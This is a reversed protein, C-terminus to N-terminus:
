SFLDPVFLKSRSSSIRRFLEIYKQTIMDATYRVLATQRAAQGLSAALTTDTILTDLAEYLQQFNGAEVVLGNKSHELIDKVGGVSTSIVPLGCAMAEILSIGFAESETPFVFIDSAQLYEEVELVSGTFHITDRLGNTSVYAKLEAECNHLDLGGSGILLLRVQGHQRQINRWVQLLLPLGKYSVLRGTFIVIRDQEPLSLKRRLAQREYLSVPRFRRTDVSNPIMQITEPNVGHDVLEMAVESSIAVFADAWRLVRDRLGLFTRFLFSSPRLGVKALGDRFFDGSMEGLSDAKLICVKGYLKSILAASLGVVRFGSVFILEYQRRLKILALFSTFLLGWKKFHESGVPPLRYVTVKGYREVKKFSADSRRTLVIVADGNAVLGEALARAQTEGGGVVPYYTETLICVQRNMQILPRFTMSPKDANRQKYFEM